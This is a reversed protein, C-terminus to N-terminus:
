DGEGKEEQCVMEGREGERQKEHSSEEWEGRRGERQAAFEEEM